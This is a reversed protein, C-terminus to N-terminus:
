YIHTYNIVHCFNLSKLIFFVILWNCVGNFTRCKPLCSACAYVKKKVTHSVCRVVIIRLRSHIMSSLSLFGQFLLAEVSSVWTLGIIFDHGFSYVASIFGDATQSLWDVSHFSSSKGGLKRRNSPYWWAFCNARNSLNSWRNWHTKRYTHWCGTVHAVLVMGYRANTRWERVLRFKWYRCFFSLVNRVLDM